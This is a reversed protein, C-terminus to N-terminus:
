INESSQICNLYARATIAPTFHALAYARPTFRDYAALFDLLRIEFDDASSFLLGSEATLYPSGVSADDFRKNDYVVKGTSLALTPVDAMWATMM